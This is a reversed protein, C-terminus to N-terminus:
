RRHRIITLGILRSVVIAIYGIGAFQELMVTALDRAPAALMAVGAVEGDRLAIEPALMGGLSHGVVVVHAADIRPHRARVRLASVADAVLTRRKAAIQSSVSADATTPSQTVSASEAQTGAPLNAQADANDGERQCAPLLVSM